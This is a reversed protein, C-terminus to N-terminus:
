DENDDDDKGKGSNDNDDQDDEEDENDDEEDDDNNGDDSDNSDNNDSDDDSDNSDDDSDDNGNVDCDEADRWEGRCFVEDDNERIDNGHNQDPNDDDEDDYNDDFDDNDDSNDDNSNNNSKSGETKIEIEGDEVEIKVGDETRMEIELNPNIAFIAMISSLTTTLRDKEEQSLNSSEVFSTVDSLSGEFEQKQRESKFGIPTVSNLFRKDDPRSIRNENEFSFNMNIQDLSLKYREQIESIIQDKDQSATVFGYKKDDAEISITSENTFVDIEVEVIKASSLDISITQSNKAIVEGVEALREEAFRVKLESKKEEDGVLKIQINEVVQEVPYLIDGPIADNSAVVVGGGGLIVVLALLTAIMHKKSFFLVLLNKPADKQKSIISLWVSNKEAETMSQVEVTHLQKEIDYSM